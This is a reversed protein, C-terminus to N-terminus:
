PCKGQLRLSWSSVIPAKPSQALRTLVLSLFTNRWDQPGKAVDVLGFYTTGERKEHPFGTMFQYTFGMPRDGTEMVENNIIIAFKTTYRSKKIYDEFDSGTVDFYQGMFVDLEKYTSFTEYKTEELLLEMIEGQIDPELDIYEQGSIPQIRPGTPQEQVMEPSTESQQKQQQAQQELQQQIQQGEEMSMAGDIENQENLLLAIQFDTSGTVLESFENFMVPIAAKYEFTV